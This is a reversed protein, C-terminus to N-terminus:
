LFMTRAYSYALDHLRYYSITNSNIATVLGRLELQSLAEQMDEPAVKMALALLEPTSSLEFMGGFAVFVDYLTKHMASLSADLLSKIGTRGLEGFNAPMTFDHPADEIQRLLEAPTLQYVKLSKSAIELAFAHYGLVECLHLANPDNSFDQGRVYLNLLK